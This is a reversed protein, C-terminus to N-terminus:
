DPHTYISTCLYRPTNLQTKSYREYLVSQVPATPPVGVAYVSLNVPCSAEELAKCGSIVTLNHKDREYDRIQKAQASGCLRYAARDRICM